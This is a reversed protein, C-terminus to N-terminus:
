QDLRGLQVALFELSLRLSPGLQHLQLLRLSPLLPGELDVLFELVVLRLQAPPLLLVLPLLRDVLRALFGLDM